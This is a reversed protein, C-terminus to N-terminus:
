NLKMEDLLWNAGALRDIVFLAYRIDLSINRCLQPDFVIDSMTGEWVRDFNVGILEGKANLVPSGSNGGSTHNTALFAVPVTGGVNWRGYDKASHIDRLKQPINYDYIDPNDKQIIGELTSVPIYYVADVPSYGEVKGYAVRLTSNADPYFVEKSGISKAYEMRGRMLSRYLLTIQAKVSDLVPVVNKKYHEDNMKFIEEAMSINGAGGPGFQKSFLADAWKDVSGYKNLQSKFFDSKYKDAIDKNYEGYLAIFVAKDIPQYYDKFFVSDNRRSSGAFKIIEVSTLAERQYDAVLSLEEISKYLGSLKETLGEYDKKGKAWESFKKEFARKDAVTNLKIIGKMEGQWKKWANAVSANKSAYAIRVKQQKQMERKQIDLVMTRLKIKAPNSIESIYRVADSTVYEQTTGPYGYVMTFDGEKVGKTSIVLSQKPVYPVNDPSYDAPENDKGAYIRFLSFDGTHRPWMWNDTDGGFKGISSPPAGVLRVDNYVKYVFIFYQNGYFLPAVRAEIGKGSKEVRAKLTKSNVQVLSDRQSEKMSPKYGQLVEKTVDKMYELFSVSLAGPNPLEESMKTAWFGDKLYDHEVSSHAQIRGFGCHHNTILLGKDSILEGTCGGNFHVIADKISSKNISYIDSANLKCGKRQMDAIKEAIQSPLWIGEDAYAIFALSFAAALAILKKM